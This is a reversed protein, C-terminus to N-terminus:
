EWLDLAQILDRLAAGSRPPLGAALRHLDARDETSFGALMQCVLPKRLGKPLSLFLDVSQTLRPTDKAALAAFPSPFGFM